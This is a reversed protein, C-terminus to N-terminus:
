PPLAGRCAIRGPDEREARNSITWPVAQRSGSAIQLANHAAAGSQAECHRDSLLRTVGSDADPRTRPWSAGGKYGPQLRSYVGSAQASATCRAM